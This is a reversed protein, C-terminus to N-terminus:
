KERELAAPNMCFRPMQGTLFRKLDEALMECSKQPIDTSVGAAHPTLILNDLELLPNDLQIPERELVDLAAGAIRKQKLAKYLAKEDLAIGRSTNVLYANNKMISLEKEGILIESGLPLRAHITVIDSERLLEDIHVSKFGSKGIIDKSLFPDHVVIRMGFSKARNAVRRGVEGFGIIGLTATSLERGTPKEFTDERHTKWRGKRVFDAADLIKRTLVLILGMTYDAVADANRGPTYLVPIKKQTAHDINVNVPGGRSCGIVKLKRSADIVEKTIPAFSIVIGDVDRSRAIIDGPDGWYEKVDNLVMASPRSPDADFKEFELSNTVGELKERIAKEFLHAPIFDDGVLLFKM